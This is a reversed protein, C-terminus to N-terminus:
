RRLESSIQLATRGKIDREIEGDIFLQVKPVSMIGYEEKVGEVHDVDVDLFLVDSNLEAVAAIHPALRQCPICWDVASFVVVTEHTFYIADKLEDLSEIKRVDSM